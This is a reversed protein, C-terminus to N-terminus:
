RPTYASGSGLFKKTAARGDLEAQAQRAQEIAEARFQAALLEQIQMQQKTGLALLQNGAQGLQLAGEASQSKASLAALTAADTQVTEAIQAQVQMTHRFGAMATDLRARAQAALQSAMVKADFDPFLARFQTDVESTRFAIGKAQQILADIDRLQGVLAQLEPFDIRTLNREMNRIMTLQNQLSQVQNNIQQLARAASLVNQSYNSPDFVTIQAAAPTPVSIAMVLSGFAGSALASVALRKKTRSM